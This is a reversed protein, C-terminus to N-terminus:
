YFRRQNSELLTTSPTDVVPLISNRMPLNVVVSNIRENSDEQSSVLQENTIFQLNQFFPKKYMKTENQSIYPTRQLQLKSAGKCSNDGQQFCALLTTAKKRFAEDSSLIQFFDPWKNNTIKEDLFTKWRAFLITDKIQNCNTTQMSENFFIAIAEMENAPMEDSPTQLAQVITQQINNHVTVQFLDLRQIITQSYPTQSM